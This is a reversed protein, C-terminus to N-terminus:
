KPYVSEFLTKIAAAAALGALGLFGVTLLEKTACSQQKIVEEAKQVVIDLQTTVEELCRRQQQDKKFTNQEIKM